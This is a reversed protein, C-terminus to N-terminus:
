AETDVRIGDRWELGGALSIISGRLILRPAIPLLRETGLMESEPPFLIGARDVPEGAVRLPHLVSCVSPTFVPLVLARVM